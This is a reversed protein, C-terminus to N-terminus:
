SVLYILIAFYINSVALSINAYLISTSFILYYPINIKSETRPLIGVVLYWMGRIEVLWTSELVGVVATAADLTLM